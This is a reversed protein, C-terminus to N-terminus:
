LLSRRSFFGNFYFLGNLSVGQISSYSDLCVMCVVAYESRVLPYGVAASFPLREGKRSDVGM